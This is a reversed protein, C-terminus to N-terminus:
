STSPNISPPSYRVPLAWLDEETLFKSYGAKMRSDLFMLSLERRTAPTPLECQPLGPSPLALSSTPAFGPASSNLGTTTPLEWPPRRSM